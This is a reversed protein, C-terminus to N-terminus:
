RGILQSLLDDVAASEATRRHEPNSLMALRHVRDSIGVAALGTRRGFQVIRRAGRYHAEARVVFYELDTDAPDTAIAIGDEDCVALVLRLGRDALVTTASHLELFHAYEAASVEDQVSTPAHDPDVVRLHRDTM